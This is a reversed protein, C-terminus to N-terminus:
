VLPPIPVFSLAPRLSLRRLLWSPILLLLMLTDLVGAVADVFSMTHGSAPELATYKHLPPDTGEPLAQGPWLLPVGFGVSTIINLALRMTDSDVTRIPKGRGRGEGDGEQDAMWKEVMGEAQSAAAGFVLGDKGGFAGGVAKRHAKWADGETALINDGFQQLVSYEAVDKPFDARRHTIQRALEANATLLTLSAPTVILTPHTILHPSTKTYSWDPRLFSKTNTHPHSSSPPLCPFLSSSAPTSPPSVCDLRGVLVQSSAKRRPEM